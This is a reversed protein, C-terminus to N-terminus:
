RSIWALGNPPVLHHALLPPVREHQRYIRKANFEISYSAGTRMSGKLPSWAGCARGQDNYLMIRQDTVPKGLDHLLAATVCAYTWLDQLKAQDEPVAAAPLM